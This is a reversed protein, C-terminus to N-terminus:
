ISFRNNKLGEKILSYTEEDYGSEDQTWEEVLNKIRELSSTKSNKGTGKKEMLQIYVAAFLPSIEKSLHSIIDQNGNKDYIQKEILKDIQVRVELM